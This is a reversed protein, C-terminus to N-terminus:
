RSLPLRRVAARPRDAGLARSIGRAATKLAPVTARLDEEGRPVIVNLAAIVRNGSEFVPVAIGTAEAVIIGPVSAYGLQRIEALLRRLETTETVTQETFRVHTRALMEEQLEAPSHALMVLGSSCAYIPLRGAIRTINVASGRATLREIYLVDGGDLVGLTTHQQVVAQLDELFPLAVERLDATHSGRSALEWLRRGLRVDGNDARELLREAVLQGVLRHTTALPIGVRRSLASLTMASRHTDFAGLISVVRTVLSEGSSSNAM